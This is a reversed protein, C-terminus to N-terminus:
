EGNQVDLDCEEFEAIDLEEAVPSANTSEKETVQNLNPYFVSTSKKTMTKESNNERNKPNKPTNPVSKPLRTSEPPLFPRRYPLKAFTCTM